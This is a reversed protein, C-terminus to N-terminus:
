KWNTKFFRNITPENPVTDDFEKKLHFCMEDFPLDSINSINIGCNSKQIKINFKQLVIRCVCIKNCKNEIGFKESKMEGM